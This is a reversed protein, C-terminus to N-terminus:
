LLIGTRWRSRWNTVNKSCTQLRSYISFNIENRINKCAEAEMWIIDLMKCEGNPTNSNLGVFECLQILVAAIKIFNHANTPKLKIKYIYIIIVSYRVNLFKNQCRQMCQM